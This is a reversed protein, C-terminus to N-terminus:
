FITAVTALAGSSSASAAKKDVLHQFLLYVKARPPAAETTVLKVHSLSRVCHGKVLSPWTTSSAKTTTGLWDEIADRETSHCLGATVLRDTLSGWRPERHPLRRYSVELGIRPAITAGHLDLSLHYRDGDPALQSVEAVRERAAQSIRGLYTLLDPLNQSYFELRIWHDSRATLDFLYLLHATPPLTELCHRFQQCLDKSPEHGIVHPLLHTILWDCSPKGHLRSCVVPEPLSDNAPLRDSDFELWLESVPAFESQARHAWLELFRRRSGSHLQPALREADEARNIRVSLDVQKSESALRVELAYLADGPLFRAVSRVRELQEPGVLVPSLHPQIVPIWSAGSLESEAATATAPGDEPLKKSTKM